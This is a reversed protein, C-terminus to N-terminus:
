YHIGRWRDDTTVCRCSDIGGIRTVVFAIIALFFGLWRWFWDHEGRSSRVNTIVFKSFGGYCREIAECEGFISGANVLRLAAFFGTLDREVSIGDRDRIGTTHVIM